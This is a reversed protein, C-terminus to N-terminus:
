CINKKKIWFKGQRVLLDGAKEPHEMLHKTVEEFYNKNQSAKILVLDGPQLISDVSKILDDRKKFTLLAKKDRYGEAMKEANLGVFIALDVREQAYAGIDFHAEKEYSGLENMNGLIAVKRKPYKISSIADLAAKVSSPNANYTDDIIKIDNRADILKMRGNVPSLKELSKKIKLSQIGLHAGIAFAILQSYIFQRGILGSKIMINQGATVIRYSTGELDFSISEAKFDANKNEIGVSIIREDQLKALGEDDINIIIKGPRSVEELFSIKEDALEAANKFNALHVPATSTIVGLNPEIISGFYKIDGRHEVGMELVLYKPYNKVWTRFYAAVLFFPWAFKSPTSAYGLITLPIGIEANLNGATKRVAEGYEDVLVQYIAEKTSTKGVSGTIGIVFPRHKVIVKRAYSALVFYIFKLILNKM